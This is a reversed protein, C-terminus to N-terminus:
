ISEGRMAACSVEAAQTSMNCKLQWVPVRRAIEALLQVTKRMGEETAPRYTQAFLIPLADEPSLPHIENEEGRGLQCIAAIPASTNASWHEKGDWPTGWARIEQPSVSILPKDGNIIGVAKGFRKRWLRIHTSKGTGSPATFLYAKGEMSIAASHFLLVNRELLKECLMRYIVLSEVYGDDATAVEGAAKERDIDAQTVTVSFEAAKESLYKQAQNAFYPYIHHIEVCIGAFQYKNTM